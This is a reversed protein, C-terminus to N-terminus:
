AMIGATQAAWPSQRAQTAMPQTVSGGLLKSSSPDLYTETIDPVNNGNVVKMNYTYGTHATPRKCAKEVGAVTAGVQQLALGASLALV